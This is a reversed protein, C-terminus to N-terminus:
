TLLENIFVATVCFLLMISLLVMLWDDSVDQTRREREENRLQRDREFSKKM